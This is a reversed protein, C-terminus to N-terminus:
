YSNEHQPSGRGWMVTNGNISWLQLKAVTIFRFTFVKEHLCSITKPLGQSFTTQDWLPVTSRKSLGQKGTCHLFLTVPAPLWSRPLWSELYICQVWVQYISIIGLESKVLTSLSNAPAKKNTQKSSGTNQQQLQLSVIIIYRVKKWPFM